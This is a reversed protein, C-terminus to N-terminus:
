AGAEADPPGSERGRGVSQARGEVYRVLAVLRHRELPLELEAVTVRRLAPSVATSPADSCEFLVIAGGPALRAGLLTAGRAAAREAVIVLPRVRVAMEVAEEASTAVTVRHGATALLQALGEMVPESSGVLLLTAM